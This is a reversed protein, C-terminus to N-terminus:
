RPQAECVIFTSPDPSLMQIFLERNKPGPSDILLRYFAGQM